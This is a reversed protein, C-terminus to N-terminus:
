RQDPINLQQKVLPNTKTSRWMCGEGFVKIVRYDFDAHNTNFFSKFTHINSWPRQDLFIMLGFIDTLKNRAVPTGSVAWFNEGHLRLAM